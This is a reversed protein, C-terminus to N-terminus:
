QSVIEVTKEIVTQAGTNVDLATIRVLHTGIKDFNIIHRFRGEELMVASEGNVRVRANEITTGSVIVMPGHIEMKSNRIPPGKEKPVPAATSKKSTNQALSDTVYFAMVKTFPGPVKEDSFGRVRWYYDGPSLSVNIDGTTLDSKDYIRKVFLPHDSVQIQFDPVFGQSYWRFVVNAMDETGTYFTEFPEPSDSNPAAPLVTDHRIGESWKFGGFKTLSGKEKGETWSFGGRHVGIYSTGTLDHRAMELEAMGDITGHFEDLDILFVGAADSKVVTVTGKVLTIHLVSQTPYYRNITV